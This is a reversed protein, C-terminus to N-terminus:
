QKDKIIVLVDDYRGKIHRRDLIEVKKGPDINEFLERDKDIDQIDEIVYLGDDCLYKKLIEYSKLQSTTNHNGDDIIVDLFMGKFNKEIDAESTADGIVINYKGEAILPRLDALGGHPQEDCDIGYVGANYFYNEWMILSAGNFVGIELVNRVTHRYPLLIEEYVPLYSHIDGKDSKLPLDDWIEQLTKM